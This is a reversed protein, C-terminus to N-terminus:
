NQDNWALINSKNQTGSKITQIAVMLLSSYLKWHPHMTTNVITSTWHTFYLQKQCIAFCCSLCVCPRVFAIVSSLFLCWAQKTHIYKSYFYLCSHVYKCHHQYVSRDHGKRIQKTDQLTSHPTVIDSGPQQNWIIHTSLCYHQPPDKKATWCKIHYPWPCVESHSICTAQVFDFSIWLFITWFNYLSSDTHMTWDNTVLEFTAIDPQMLRNVSM